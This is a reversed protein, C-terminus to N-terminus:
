INQLAVALVALDDRLRGPAGEEALHVVERALQGAGRAHRAALDDALAQPSLPRDRRAETAGDTYLVLADGPELQLERDEIHVQAEVGLLTGPVGAVEGGGAARLVVPPPHGGCAVVLRAGGSARPELRALVATVFRRDASQRLMEDNLAALTVAPSRSRGAVARLTYRALATMAAAEAGKGLVDGIVLAWAGDDLAFVDYFDGGVDM